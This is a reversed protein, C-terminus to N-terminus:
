TGRANHSPRAPRRNDGDPLPHAQLGTFPGPISLLAKMQRLGASPGVRRAMETVARKLLRDDSRSPHVYQVYSHEVYEEFRGQQITSMANEISIKVNPLVGGGTASLLALRQVRQRAIQMMELAIQSGLSFGALCFREPANRLVADAIGRIPESQTTDAVIAHVRDRLAHIQASWLREDCLLGPILLLTPRQYDAEARISCGNKMGAEPPM